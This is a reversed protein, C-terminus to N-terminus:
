KSLEKVILYQEWADRLSPNKDLEQQTPGEYRKYMYTYENQIRQLQHAVYKHQEDNNMYQMLGLPGMLGLQAQGAQNMLQQQMYANLQPDNKGYTSQAYRMADAYHNQISADHAIAM